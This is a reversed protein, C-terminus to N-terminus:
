KVVTEGLDFVASRGSKINLNDVSGAPLEVVYRADSKPTFVSDVGSDPSANMVIYVIKKDKDIWIIDMSTKIDKMSIPWKSDSPYAMMLAQNNSLDTTGNLAADRLAPTNALRATFVGDGINLSVRSQVNASFVAVAAALILAVVGIIIVALGVDGMRKM